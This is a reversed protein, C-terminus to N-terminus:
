INRSSIVLVHNGHYLTAQLPYNKLVKELLSNFNIARVPVNGVWEYDNPIDWVVQPWGFQRALRRINAQLSGSEMMASVQFNRPQHAAIPVYTKVPTVTPAAIAAASNIQKAPPPLQVPVACMVNVYMLAAFSLSFQICIRM